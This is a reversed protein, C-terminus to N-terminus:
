KGLFNCDKTGEEGMVYLTAIPPAMKAKPGFHWAALNRGGEGFWKYLVGLKEVCLLPGDSILTYVVTKLM